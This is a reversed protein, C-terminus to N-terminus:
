LYRRSSQALHYASVSRCADPNIRMALRTQAFPRVSLAPLAGALTLVCYYRNIQFIRTNSNSWAGVFGSPVAMYLRIRTGVSPLSV